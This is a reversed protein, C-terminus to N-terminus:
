YPYLQLYKCARELRESHDNPLGLSKRYGCTKDIADTIYEPLAAIDKQTVTRTPRPMGAPTVVSTIGHLVKPLVRTEVPQTIGEEQTIGKTIGKSRLRKMALRNAERQKQKDKYM